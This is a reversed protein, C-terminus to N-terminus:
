QFFSWRSWVFCNIMYCTVNYVVIFFLIILNIVAFARLSDHLFFFTWEM